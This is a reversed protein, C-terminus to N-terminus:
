YLPAVQDIPTSDYVMAYVVMRTTIFVENLGVRPRLRRDHRESPLPERLRHALHLRDLLAPPHHQVLAVVIRDREVEPRGTWSKRRDILESKYLGITSEM